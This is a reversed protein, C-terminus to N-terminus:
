HDIELILIQTESLSQMGLTLLHFLKPFAMEMVPCEEFPLWASVDNLIEGSQKATVYDVRDDM